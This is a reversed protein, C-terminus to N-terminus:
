FSDYKYHYYFYDISHNRVGHCYENEREKDNRELIQGESKCKTYKGYDNLKSNQSLPLFLATIECRKVDYFM